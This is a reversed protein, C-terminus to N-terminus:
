STTGKNKMKGVTFNKFWFFEQKKKNEMEGSTKGLQAEPWKMKNSHGHNLYFRAEHNYQKTTETNLSFDYKNNINFIKLRDISNFEAFVKCKSVGEVYLDLM